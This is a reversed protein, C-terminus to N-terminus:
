LLLYGILFTLNDTFCQSLIIGYAEGQKRKGLSLRDTGM